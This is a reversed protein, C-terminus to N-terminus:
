LRIIASLVLEGIGILPQVLWGLVGTVLLAIVIMFGYPEM